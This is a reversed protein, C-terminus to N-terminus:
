PQITILQVESLHEWDFSQQQNVLTFSNELRTTPDPVLAACWNFGLTASTRRQGLQETGLVVQGIIRAAVTRLLLDIASHAPFPLPDITENLCGM